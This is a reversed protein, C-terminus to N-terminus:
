GRLRQKEMVAVANETEYVIEGLRQVEEVYTQTTM